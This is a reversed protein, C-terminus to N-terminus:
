KMAEMISDFSNRNGEINARFWPMLETESMESLEKRRDGRIINCSSPEVFCIATEWELYGFGTLRHSVSIWCNLSVTRVHREEAPHDKPEDIKRFESM